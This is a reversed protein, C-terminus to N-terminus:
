SELHCNKKSPSGLSDIYCELYVLCIELVILDESDCEKLLLSAQVVTRATCFVKKSKVRSFVQCKNSDGLLHIMITNQPINYAAEFFGFLGM